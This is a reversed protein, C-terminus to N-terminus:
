SRRHTFRGADPGSRSLRFLQVSSVMRVSRAPRLDGEVVLRLPGDQASLPHGDALNALVIKQAGISPDTEALTLAVRYGDTATVMVVDTMDSGRLAKGSPAGVAQLIATLPAGEYTITTGDRSRLTVRQRPMAALQRAQFTHVRRDLGMVSLTQAVVPLAALCFLISVILKM